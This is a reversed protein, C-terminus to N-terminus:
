GDGREHGGRRRNQVARLFAPGAYLAHGALVLFGASEVAITRGILPAALSEEFGFLGVTLSLVLGGLTGIQLLAGGATVLPLWRAPTVLVAFAAVAGLVGNLFFLPGITEVTSYGQNYLHFHIWAMAVLLGAGVLRVGWRGWRNMPPRGAGVRQAWDPTSHQGRVTDKVKM